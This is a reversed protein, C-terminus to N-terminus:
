QPVGDKSHVDFSVGGKQCILLGLHLAFDLHFPIRGGREIEGVAKIGAASESFALGSWM